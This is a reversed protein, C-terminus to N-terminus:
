RVICINFFPAINSDANCPAVDYQYTWSVREGTDISEATRPRTLGDVTYTYEIVTNVVSDGGNDRLVRSIQGASNREYTLVANTINNGDSVVQETLEGNDDYVYVNQFVNAGAPELRSLSGILRSDDNYVRFDYREVFGDRGFDNRTEVLLGNRYLFKFEDDFQGDAGVDFYEAIRLGTDDFELIFRNDVAGDSNTDVDITALRWVTSLSMDDAAPFMPEFADGSCGVATTALLLACLVPKCCRYFRIRVDM